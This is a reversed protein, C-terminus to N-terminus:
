VRAISNRAHCAALDQEAQSLATEAPGLQKELTQIEHVLFLRQSPPADQLETQLSQIQANLDSVALTASSVAAQEADCTTMTLTLTGDIAYLHDPTM